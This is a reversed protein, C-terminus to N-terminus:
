AGDPANRGDELAQLRARLCFRLRGCPRADEIWGNPSALYLACTALIDELDSEPSVGSFVYSALGEGQLGLSVPEECVGMCASAHIKIQSDLGRAHIASNLAELAAELAAPTEHCSECILLRPM